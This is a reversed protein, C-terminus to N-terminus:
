KRWGRKGRRSKLWEAYAAREEATMAGVASVLLDAALQHSTSRVAVVNNVAASFAQADFPQAALLDHAVRRAARAEQRKSRLRGRADEVLGVLVERREAPLDRAFRVIGFAQRHDGGAGHGRHGRHWFAGALAGIVLLNVALSVVLLTWLWRRSGTPRGEVSANTDTQSM